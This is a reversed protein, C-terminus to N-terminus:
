KEKKQHANKISLYLPRYINTYVGRSFIMREKIYKYTYMFGYTTKKAAYAFQHMKCLFQYKCYIGLTHTVM